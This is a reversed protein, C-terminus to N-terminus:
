YRLQNRKNWLPAYIYRDWREEEHDMIMLPQAISALVAATHFWYAIRDIAAGATYVRMARAVDELKPYVPPIDPIECEGETSTLRVGYLLPDIVDTLTIDTGHYGMPVGTAIKAGRSLALALPHAFEIFHVILAPASGDSIIESLEILHTRPVTTIAYRVLSMLTAPLVAKGM